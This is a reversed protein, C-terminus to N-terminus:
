RIVVGDKRAQRIVNGSTVAYFPTIPYGTQRLASATWTNSTKPFYYHGNAQFFKSNAYLGDSAFIINGEDDRRFRDAIFKGLKEAGTQSIQVRIINSASFYHELPIDIGVVHIVSGTPILAARLMLVLGADHDTYYKNDGWGFKLMGSEPMAPHGPLLHKIYEQEIAIGVHWGHSVVYVPIPRESEDAPYLERVPGLCGALFILLPLLRCCVGVSEGSKALDIL